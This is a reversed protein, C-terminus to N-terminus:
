PSILYNLLVISQNYENMADVYQLKIAIATQMNQIYEMYGIEGLNYATQATQAIEGAQVIGATEYYALSEKAKLYENYQVSYANQLAQETQQREIDIQAKRIQAAKIKARNSGFFLPVSIGIQFGPLKTDNFSYSGFIDPLLKNKEVSIQAKAVNQQQSYYDLIPATGELKRELPSSLVAREPKGGEIPGLPVSVNLLKQLLLQSNALDANAKNLQLRNEQHRNQANMLELQNTEGTKFRLTARQLFDSYLSDQQQLLRVTQLAHCSNFYAASVEKTLENLTVRKSTEALLTEQKLLQGQATYVTPFEFTQTVSVKKDIWDPTLPDQQYSIGTKEPNFATGQLAKAQQVDLEASQIQLNNKLAIEICESLSKNIEQANLKGSQFVVM